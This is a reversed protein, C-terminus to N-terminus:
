AHLARNEECVNRIDLIREYSDSPTPHGQQLDSLAKAMIDCIVVMRDWIAAM